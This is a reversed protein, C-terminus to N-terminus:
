KQYRAVLQVGIEGLKQRLEPPKYVEIDMGLMAFQHAFWDLEHPPCHFSLEATGDPRRQIMRGIHPDSELRAAGRDTLLAAVQPYSEHGYPLDPPLPTPLFDASPRTISRFRDARYTRLQAHEHSYARCYWFGGQTYVQNILLHQTSSREISQYVAKVWTKQRALEVLTELYPARQTESLIMVEEVALLDEAGSLEASPTVARLKATLSTLEQRFPLDPLNRLSSLALLLLFAEGSNIPLPHTRYDEPLSYGGGPGERAIVPVGMESLAQVDRLVTRRSIEFHRAIEASTFPRSQLLLLIAALREIRTM